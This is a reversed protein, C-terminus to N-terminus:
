AKGHVKWRELIARVYIARIANKFSHCVNKARRHRNLDKGAEIDHM